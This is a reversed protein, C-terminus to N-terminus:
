PNRIFIGITEKRKWQVTEVRVQIVGLKILGLLDLLSLSDKDPETIEPENDIDLERFFIVTWEEHKYPFNKYAEIMFLGNLPLIAKILKEPDTLGDLVKLIKPVEFRKTAIGSEIIEPEKFTKISNKM